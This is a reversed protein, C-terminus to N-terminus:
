RRSVDSQDPGPQPRPVERVDLVEVGGYDDFRDAKSM